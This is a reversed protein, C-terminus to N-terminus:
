VDMMGLGREIQRQEQRARDIEEFLADENMRYTLIHLSDSLHVNNCVCGEQLHLEIPAFNWIAKIGSRMVMDAIEQANKAPVAIVAIDVKHSSMWDGLREISQVPLGHVDVGVLMPNADFIARVRFGEQAFGEYNAVARGINGAGIIIVHYEENLGLIHAIHSRLESVRYGYGQQGVGGFCNIDQRIQSATLNMQEGLERSSIRAVGRSELERLQRYYMPLRRVVADSVRYTYGM